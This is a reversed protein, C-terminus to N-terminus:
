LPVPSGREMYFKYLPNRWPASGWGLLFVSFATVRIVSEMSSKIEKKNGRTWAETVSPLASVGFAQTIAPVLLYITLALTYCGYLFTSVSSPSDLYIEPIQGKYCALLAQPATEMIHGIRNQLFTADILGAVNM